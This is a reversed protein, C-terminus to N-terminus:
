YTKPLLLPELIILICDLGSANIHRLSTINENCNFGLGDLSCSSYLIKNVEKGKADLDMNDSREIIGSIIVENNENKTLKGLKIIDNAIENASKESRLDNSGVHLIYLDNKHNLSPLVYSNMDQINAGSFSKMYLKDSKNTLSNRMKFTQIDKAMSDTLICISRKKSKDKRSKVPTFIEEDNKDMNENVNSLLSFSNSTEVNIIDKTHNQEHKADHISENIETASFSNVPKNKSKIILEEIIKSKIISDQRLFIVESRLQEILTKYQEILKYNDHVNSKSKNIEEHVKRLVCEEFKQLIYSETDDSPILTCYDDDTQSSKNTFTTLFYTDNDDKGKDVIINEEVLETIADNFAERDITFDQSITGYINDSSVRKKKVERISLIAELISNKIANTDSMNSLFFLAIFIFAREEGIKQTQVTLHSSRLQIADTM